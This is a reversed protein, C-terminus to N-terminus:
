LVLTISITATIIVVPLMDRWLLKQFKERHRFLSFLKCLDKQEKCYNKIVELYFHFNLSSAIIEPSYRQPAETGEDTFQFYDCIDIECPLHSM